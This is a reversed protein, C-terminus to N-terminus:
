SRPELGYVNRAVRNLKRTIKGPKIGNEQLVERCIGVWNQPIEQGGKRNMLDMMVRVFSLAGKKSDVKYFDPLQREDKNSQILKGIAEDDMFYRQMM